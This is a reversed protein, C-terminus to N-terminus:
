LKRSQEFKLVIKAVVATAPAPVIALSNYRERQFGASAEVSGSVLTLASAAFRLSILRYRM